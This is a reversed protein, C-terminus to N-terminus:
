RAYIQALRAPDTGLFYLLRLRWMLVITRIVGRQEWRRGSTVAKAKLCAPAGSRKLASSLAVDEMLGIPPFGGAKEFAARTVFMAQDGTAIGTFRSRLNMMFGVVALLPRASDIRVNFRGWSDRGLADAVVLDASEPLRTDAHLFLFANGTAAKAGVNMQAARGRPALLIQDALTRSLDVTSDTSGGDVVIVEHGRARLPQLRNLAAAIIPGENLVPVIISIRLFGARAKV